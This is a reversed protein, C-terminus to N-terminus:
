QLYRAQKHCCSSFQAQQSCTEQAMEEETVVGCYRDQAEQRPTYGAADWCM